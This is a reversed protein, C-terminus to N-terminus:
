TESMWDEFNSIIYRDLDKWSVSYPSTDEGAIRRVHQLNGVFHLKNSPIVKASTSLLELLYLKKKQPNKKYVNPTFFQPLYEIDELEGLSLSCDSVVKYFYVVPVIHGPHWTAQGVKVFHLYKGYVGCDKAYDSDLQYAYVDGISWACRYLKYPAVRKEAPQPSMLKQRLEDLVKARKIANAPDEKEWRLLDHGENLYYVAREKVSDELRGLDWQTDALAFWFEPADDSDLTTFKNQAILDQTIDKGSKGRRLQDRYYDRVEEAIDSQYLKPGWIGM